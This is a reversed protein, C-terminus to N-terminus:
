GCNLLSLQALSVQTKLHHFAAIPMCACMCCSDEVVGAVAVFTPLKHQWCAMCSFAAQVRLEFPREAMGLLTALMSAARYQSLADAYRRWPALLLRGGCAPPGPAWGDQTHVPLCQLPPPERRCAEAGVPLARAAATGPSRLPAARGAPSPAAARSACAAWTGPATGRTSPGATSLCM